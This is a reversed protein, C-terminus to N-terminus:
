SKDEIMREPEPIFDGFSLSGEIWTEKADEIMKLVDKRTDAYTMCGPLEPVEAFWTRVDGYPPYIRVSYPLSMYYEIDRIAESM